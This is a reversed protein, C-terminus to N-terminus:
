LSPPTWKHTRVENKKLSNDIIRDLESAEVPFQLFGEYRVRKRLQKLRLKTLQDLPVATHIVVPIDATAPHNRIMEFFDFGNMGPIYLDLLIVDPRRTVMKDVAEASDVAFGIQHNSRYRLIRAIYKRSQPNDDIMLIYAM